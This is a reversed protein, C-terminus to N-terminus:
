MSIVLNISANAAITNEAKIYSRTLYFDRWNEQITQVRDEPLSQGRLYDAKLLLLDIYTYILLIFSVWCM